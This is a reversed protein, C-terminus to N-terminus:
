ANPADILPVWDVRTETFASRQPERDIPTDFVARVIHIEDPWKTSEFFLTSGCHSCFSRRAEASSRYHQLMENGATMRFQKNEVGVWTVFGAGHAKRCLSCYCHACWKTPMEIEFRVSGCLCSGRAKQTM